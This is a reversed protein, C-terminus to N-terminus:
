RAKELGHVCRGIKVTFASGVGPTSEVLIEGGVIDVVRKVLSLGLGNGETARSTDGQYFKEFMRAGVEPTMGCGTDRVTVTALDGQAKLSLTVKGGEKTFKFANSLLNSWVLSLLENDACVTVNEEIDADIEIGRAEWVAEFQLLSEGLAEGLDYPAVEPYIKQNELRNLKLVNTIMASLRTAATSIARIYEARTQAPLTEDELLRAYNKIVALPTKMEHSVSSVFDNRLTETGSLERAMKNISDVIEQFSEDAAFSPARDIRVDFDGRIM